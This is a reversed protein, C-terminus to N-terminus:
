SHQKALWMSYWFSWTSLLLRHLFSIPSQECGHGLFSVQLLTLIIACYGKDAMGTFDHEGEEHLSKLPFQFFNVDCQSTEPLFSASSVVDEVEFQYNLLKPLSVFSLIHKMSQELANSQIFCRRRRSVRCSICKSGLIMFRSSFRYWLWCDLQRASSCLPKWHWPHMRDCCQNLRYVSPIMLSPSASVLFWSYSSGLKWPLAMCSSFYASSVSKSDHVSLPRSVRISATFPSLSTLFIFNISISLHLWGESMLILPSFISITSDKVRKAWFWFPFCRRVIASLLM